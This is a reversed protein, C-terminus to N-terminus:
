HVLPKLFDSEVYVERRKPLFVRIKRAKLPPQLRLPRLPHSRSRQTYFACLGREGPLQWLPSIRRSLLPGPRPHRARCRPSKHSITRLFASMRRASALDVFVFFVAALITFISSVRHLNGTVAPM